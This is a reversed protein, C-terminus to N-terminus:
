RELGRRYKYAISGQEKDVFRSALKVFEVRAYFEFSGLDRQLPNVM